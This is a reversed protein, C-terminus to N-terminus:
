ARSGSATGSDPPDAELAALMGWARRMWRGRGAQGGLGLWLWPAGWAAHRVIEWAVQEEAPRAPAREAALLLPLWRFEEAHRVASDLAPVLDRDKQELQMRRLRLRLRAAHLEPWLEFLLWWTLVWSLLTFSVGTASWASM